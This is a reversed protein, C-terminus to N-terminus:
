QRRFRMSGADGQLTLVLEAGRSSQGAVAALQKLFDADRSGPPCMMKTLAIPGFSLAGEDLRYSGGGRNCDARVNVRGGPQFDLSYREPADPVIRTGDKMQTGAWTWVVNTALTDDAAALPPPPADVRGPLPPGGSETAACAALALALAAPLLCHPPRM